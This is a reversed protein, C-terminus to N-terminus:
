ARDTEKALPSPEIIAWDVNHEDYDQVLRNLLAYLWEGPHGVANIAHPQKWSLNVTRTGTEDSCCVTASVTPVSSGQSASISVSYIPTM